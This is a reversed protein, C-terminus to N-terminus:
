IKLRLEALEDRVRAVRQEIDLMAARRSGKQRCDISASYLTCHAFWKGNNHKGVALLPRGHSWDNRYLELVSAADRTMVQGMWIFSKPKKMTVAREPVLLLHLARM